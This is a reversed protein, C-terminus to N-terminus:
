KVESIEFDDYYVFGGGANDKYTRVEFRFKDATAPAQIQFTVQQWEANDTSYTGPQLETKNDTLVSGTALWTSWIRSKANADNDLFWYSIKYTKGGEVSVEQQIKFNGSATPATHMASNSGGHKINTSKTVGTNYTANDWSAALADTWNEFGPNAVLNGTTPEGGGGTNGPVAVKVNKIEWTGAKTTTSIYKFAIQVTKGVYSKLSIEGAPVFTWSAGDSFTPITLQTWADKGAESIWLTFDTANSGAFRNVHDFTLTADSIQSLDLVPSVLWSESALNQGGIYASAKMYSTSWQWVYTSGTPLTVDKITFAGQNTAFSEVYAQNATVVVKDSPTPPEQGGGQVDSTRINDLCYTASSKGGQGIYQFGIFGVKGAFPTLDITLDKAWAYSGTIPIGAVNIETKNMVGNVLELFYVKLSSTEVYFAVTCDFLIKKDKVNNVTFAPTAFWTEYVQGETTGYATAKIYKDTNFVTGQWKRNGQVYANSWGTLAYDTKDVVDEFNASFTNVPNADSLGLPNNGDVPGSGGIEVGDLIAASTEKIGAVGFYKTLKGSIIVAKGLNDAHDLLNLASRVDGTLLQVAICKKYDTEDKSAAILINSSKTFPAAFVASTEISIDNVAGVIYGMVWAESNDQKKMASAIDYPNEKTGEGTLTGGGENIDYPSPVDSCSFTALALVALLLSNFIKKM